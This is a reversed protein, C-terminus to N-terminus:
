PFLSVFFVRSAFLTMRIPMSFAKFLSFLSMSRLVPPFAKQNLSFFRPSRADLASGDLLLLLREPAVVYALFFFSLLFVSVNCAALSQGTSRSLSPGGSCSLPRCLFSSRLLFNLPALSPLTPPSLFFFVVSPPCVIWLKICLFLFFFIPSKIERPSMANHTWQRLYPRPADKFRVPFSDVFALPPLVFLIEGCCGMLGRHPLFFIPDRKLAIRSSKKTGSCPWPRLLFSQRDPARLFRLRRFVPHRRLPSQPSPKSMSFPRFFSGL